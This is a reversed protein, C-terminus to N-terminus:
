IFNIIKIKKVESKWVCTPCYEEETKADLDVECGEIRTCVREDKIELKKKVVVKATSHADGYVKSDCAWGIKGKKVRVPAWRKGKFLAEKIADQEKWMDEEICVTRYKTGRFTDVPDKFIKLEYALAGGSISMSALITALIKRM